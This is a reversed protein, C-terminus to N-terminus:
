RRLQALAEADRGRLVLWRPTDPVFMLLFLLIGSPIAESALMYRWGTAKLWADDGQSAVFWNVFYVLLIGGVIAVQNFSV